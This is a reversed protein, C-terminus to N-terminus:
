EDIKQLKERLKLIEKKRLCTMEYDTAVRGTDDVCVVDGEKIEGTVNQINLIVEEGNEDECIIHNDNIRDVFLFKM